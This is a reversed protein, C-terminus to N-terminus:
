CSHKARLQEDEHSHPLQVKTVRITQSLYCASRWQALYSADSTESPASSSPEEESSSSSSAGAASPVRFELMMQRTRTRTRTQDCERGIAGGAALFRLVAGVDPFLAGSTTSSSSSSSGSSPESSSATGTSSSSSPSSPSPSSAPSSSPASSVALVLPGAALAFRAFPFITGFSSSKSSTFPSSSYFSMVSM